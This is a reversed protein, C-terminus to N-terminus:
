NWLIFIVKWILYVTKLWFYGDSRMLETIYYIQGTDACYIYNAIKILLRM